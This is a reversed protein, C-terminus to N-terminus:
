ALDGVLVWEDTARKRLSVAGYQNGISLLSGRSRITVGAGAAIAVTGAGYRAVEVITGIPFAVSSNPPVTATLASASNIEVTKGADTLVLTYNATQTNPAGNGSPIGWTNDGRLVTTVDKTGTASLEALGLSGDQVDTGTITGDLIKTTTVAGDVLKATTVSLDLPLDSREVVGSWGILRRVTRAGGSPTIAAFLDRQEPLQDYLTADDWGGAPSDEVMLAHYSNVGSGFKTKNGATLTHTVIGTPTDVDPNLGPAWIRGTLVDGNREAEASWVGAVTWAAQTKSTGDALNTRSGGDVKVISFRVDSSSVFNTECRIYNASDLWVNTPCTSNFNTPLGSSISFKVRMRRVLTSQGQATWRLTRFQSAGGSTLKGGSIALGVGGFNTWAGSAITDTSFDDTALTIWTGGAVVQGYLEIVDTGVPSEWAAKDPTAASLADIRTRAPIVSIPTM